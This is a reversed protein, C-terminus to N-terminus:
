QKVYNKIIELADASVKLGMEFRLAKDQLVPSALKGNEGFSYGGVAFLKLAESHNKLPYYEAGISVCSIKTGNFVLMDQYTGSTNEDYTYKAYCRMWARPEVSAECMVSWDKKFFKQQSGARNMVDVEFQIDYPFYFRNGLMIYNMYRDSTNQLMSVSWLTEWANFHKGQWLLNLGYKNNGVWQRLPSNCVQLTLKNNKTIQCGISAGLQYCAITSSFESIYYLDIPARNYEFGGFAVVQKGGSFTLFDTIKWTADFVNTADFFTKDPTRNLDQQFRVHLKDSIDGSFNLLLYKGRFGMKDNQKYGDISYGEFEMRGDVSLEQAFAYGPMFFVLLLSLINTTLKM